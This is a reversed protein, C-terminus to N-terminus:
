VITHLAVPPVINSSGIHLCSERSNCALRTTSDVFFLPANPVNKADICSKLSMIMLRSLTKVPILRNSIFILHMQQIVVASREDKFPTISIM